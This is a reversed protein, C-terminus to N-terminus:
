GNAVMTAVGATITASRAGRTLKAFTRGQADTGWEVAAGLAEAIQRLPVMTMNKVVYASKNLKLATGNVLISGSAPAAASPPKAPAAVSTTALMVSALLATLLIKNGM